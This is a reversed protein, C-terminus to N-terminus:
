NNFIDFIVVTKRDMIAFTSGFRGHRSRSRWSSSTSAHNVFTRDSTRRKFPKGLEAFLGDLSPPSVSKGPSVDAWDAVTCVLWSM